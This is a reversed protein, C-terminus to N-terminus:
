CEVTLQTRHLEGGGLTAIERGAVALVVADQAASAAGIPRFRDHEICAFQLNGWPELAAVFQGDASVAGHLWPGEWRDLIVGSAADIWTIARNLDVVILREENATAEIAVITGGGLAIEPLPTGSSDFVRPNAFGVVIAREGIWAAQPSVSTGKWLTAIATGARGDFLTVRTSANPNGTSFSGLLREGNASWAYVQPREGGGPWRAPLAADIVTYKGSTLDLVGAGWYVRQGSFRPVGPSPAPAEITAIRTGHHWVCLRAPGAVALRAGDFALSSGGESRLTRWPELHVSAM